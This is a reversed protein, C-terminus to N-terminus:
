KKNIMKNLEQLYIDCIESMYEEDQSGKSCELAKNVYEIAELCRDKSVTTLYCIQALLLLLEYNDNDKRLGKRCCYEAEPYEGLGIRINTELIDLIINDPYNLNKYKILIRFAEKYNEQEVEQQIIAITETESFNKTERNTIKEFIYLVDKEFEIFENKTREVYGVYDNKREDYNEILEYITNLADQVKAQETFKYREPIIIDIDNNAAGKKNTVICCGSVAAERPMRDKGPHNGFDIYVKARHMIEHMQKPTLGALVQWKITANSMKIIVGTTDFGKKPNFLVVDDRPVDPLVNLFENNIYDSLYYIRNEAIKVTNILYDTAYRSQSFHLISTDEQIIKKIKDDYKANDVSLWWVVRLANKVFKIGNLMVEPFIVINESKDKIEDVYPVQYKQYQESVPSKNEKREYYFISVDFGFLRLKYGLQHLLEPGGTTINAPCLIYIMCNDESEM